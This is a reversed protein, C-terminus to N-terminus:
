STVGDERKKLEDEKDFIVRVYRKNSKKSGQREESDLEM